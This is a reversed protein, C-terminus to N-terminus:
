GRWLFHLRLGVSSVIAVRGNLGQACVSLCGYMDDGKLLASRMFVGSGLRRCSSSFFAGRRYGYM